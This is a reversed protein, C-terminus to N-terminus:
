WPAARIGNEPLARFEYGGKSFQDLVRPLAYRLREEAKLSDHFVIISGTRANIIVNQLCREGSLHTDFDASLVDWMVVVFRERLARAQEGTIRGYPPRFLRTRTLVHTREINELYKHTATRWGNLHDWTHNGVSHGENRVRAFLAPHAEANRGIIFFTAKANHDRLTDLVWPTVEPIPGDDFTLYLVKRDSPMRWLRHRYCWRVLAPTRIMHM